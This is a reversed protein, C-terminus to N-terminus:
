WRRRAWRGGRGASSGAAAHAGPGAAMVAVLCAYALADCDADALEVACRDGHADMAALAEASVTTM